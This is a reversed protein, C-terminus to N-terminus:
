WMASAANYRIFVCGDSPILSVYSSFEDWNVATILRSLFCFGSTLFYQAVAPWSILSKLFPLTTMPADHGYWVFVSIASLAGTLSRTGLSPAVPQSSVHITEACVFFMSQAIFHSAYTEVGFTWASCAIKKPSVGTLEFAHAIMSLSDFPEQACYWAFAGSLYKLCIWKQFVGIASQPLPCFFQM